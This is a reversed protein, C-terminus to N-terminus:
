ALVPRTSFAHQRYDMESKNRTREVDAINNEPGALAQAFGTDRGETGHEAVM